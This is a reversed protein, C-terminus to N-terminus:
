TWCLSRAASKTHRPFSWLTLEWFFISELLEDLYGRRHLNCLSGHAGAEGTAPFLTKKRNNVFVGVRTRVLADRHRLTIGGTESFDKGPYLLELSSVARGTTRFVGVHYRASSSNARRCSNM